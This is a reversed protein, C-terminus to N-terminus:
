YKKGSMKDMCVKLEDVKHGTSSGKPHKYTYSGNKDITVSHGPLDAHSYMGGKGKWGRVQLVKHMSRMSPVVVNLPYKGSAANGAAIGSHLERLATEHTKYEASAKDMLKNLRSIERQDGAKRAIGLSKQLSKMTIEAFRRKAEHFIKANEKSKDASKGGGSQPGSGPGGVLLNEGSGNLESLRSVGMATELKM